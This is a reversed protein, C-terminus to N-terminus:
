VSVKHPTVLLRLRAMSVGRVSLCLFGVVTWWTEHLRLLIGAVFGIDPRGMAVGLVAVQGAELAGLGAPTPVARALGTAVLALLLTPLDVLVGFATFLLRMEVIVLAEIALSGLVGWVCAAPDNAVFRILHDEMRQLPGVWRQGRVLGAWAGARYLPQLPRIGRRLLALPLALGVLLACLSAILVPVARPAAEFTHTVAFVSVYAIACLTNGLMEMIRDIAVGAGAQTGGVGDGYVLAARLPDGGIRGGPLVSGVADGSLRAAVFRSAPPAAGLRRTVLYWRVGYGGRVLCGCLVYGIVYAPRVHEFAGALDSWGFRWSLLACAGVGAALAAGRLLRQAASSDRGDEKM